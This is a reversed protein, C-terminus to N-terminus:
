KGRDHLMRARFHSERPTLDGLLGQVGVAHHDGDLGRRGLGCAKHHLLAQLGLQLLWLHPQRLHVARHAEVRRRLDNGLGQLLCPDTLRASDAVLVKHRSTTHQAVGAVHYRQDRIHTSLGLRIKVNRGVICLDRVHLDIQVASDLPKHGQKAKEAQVSCYTCLGRLVPIPVAPRRSGVAIKQPLREKIIYNYQILDHGDAEVHGELDDLQYQAHLNGQVRLHHVRLRLPGRQRPGCVEHLLHALDTKHEGVLRARQGFVLHDESPTADRAM